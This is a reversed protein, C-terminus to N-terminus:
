SQARKRKRKERSAELANAEDLKRSEETLAHMEQEKAMEALFEEHDRRDEYYKRVQFYVGVVLAGAILMPCLLDSILVSLLQVLEINSM